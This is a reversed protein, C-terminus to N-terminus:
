AKGRPPYEVVGLGGFVGAGRGAAVADKDRLAPRNRQRAIGRAHVVGDASSGSEADHSHLLSAPVSHQLRDSGDAVNDVTDLAGIRVAYRESQFLRSRNGGTDLLLGECCPVGLGIM